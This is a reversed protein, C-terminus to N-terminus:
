KHGNQLPAAISKVLNVTFQLLGRWQKEGGSVGENHIKIILEKNPNKFLDKRYRNIIDGDLQLVTQVYIIDDNDIASKLENIKRLSRLFRSNDLIMRLEKSFHLTKPYKEVSIDYPFPLNAPLKDDEYIQRFFIQIYERVLKERLKWYHEAAKSSINTHETNGQDQSTFQPPIRSDVENELPKLHDFQYVQDLEDQLNKHLKKNDPIRSDRTLCFFINQYAEEPIFKTGTIESVIMTNVELATVDNLVEILSESFDELGKRLRAPSSEENQSVNRHKNAKHNQVKVTNTSRSAQHMSTTSSSEPVIEPRNIPNHNGRRRSGQQADAMITM